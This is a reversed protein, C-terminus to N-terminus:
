IIFTEEGEWGANETKLRKNIETLREGCERLSELLAAFDDEHIKQGIRINNSHNCYLTTENYDPHIYVSRGDTYEKPLEDMKYSQFGIIERYKVGRVISKRTKITLSKM